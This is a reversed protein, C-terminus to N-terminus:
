PLLVDNQSSARYPGVALAPDGGGPVGDASLPYRGTPLQTQFTAPSSAVLTQSEPGGGLHLVSDHRTQNAIVFIVDLPKRTKIPPQPHNQNQPIQQKEEPGFAIRSPQVILGRSSLTVSVRTPVQPRPENPHTQAGCGAAVLALASAVLVM